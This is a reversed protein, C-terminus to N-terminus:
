CVSHVAHKTPTLIFSSGFYSALPVEVYAMPKHLGGEQATM